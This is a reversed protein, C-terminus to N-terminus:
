VWAALSRTVMADLAVGDGCSPGGAAVACVAERLDVLPATECERTAGAVSLDRQQPQVIAALEAAVAGASFFGQGCVGGFRVVEVNPAVGACPEGGKARGLRTEGGNVVDDHRTGPVAEGGVVQTM